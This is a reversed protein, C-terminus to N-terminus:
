LGEGVEKRPNGSFVADGHPDEIDVAALSDGAEAGSALAVCYQLKEGGIFGPLQRARVAEASENFGANILLVNKVLREM